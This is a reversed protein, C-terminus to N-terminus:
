ARWTKGTSGAGAALKTCHADAGTLGGFNAGMGIPVSTIFFSMPQTPKQTQAAQGQVAPTMLVASLVIVASLVLTKRMARGKFHTFPEQIYSFDRAIARSAATV